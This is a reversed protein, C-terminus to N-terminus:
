TQYGERGPGQHDPEAVAQRGRAHGGAGALHAYRASMQVTTHGLLKGVTYIDTGAEVQWSAYSHRLTHSVVKERPDTIGKNPELEKVAAWFDTPTDAYGRGDLTPFVLSEPNGKTRGTLMERVEPTMFATRSKGGKADFITILGRELDVAGWKLSKVEGFRMGSFLSLFAMDHITRNGQKLYALLDGAEEQSLFRVRRNEIKPIKVARTPSEESVLGDRRAM